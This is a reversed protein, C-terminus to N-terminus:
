NMKWSSPLLVCPVNQANTVTYQSDFRIMDESVVLLRLLSSQASFAPADGGTAALAVAEDAESESRCRLGCCPM